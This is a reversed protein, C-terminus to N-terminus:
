GEGTKKEWEAQFLDETGPTPEVERRFGYGAAMRIAARANVVDLPMLCIRLMNASPIEGKDYGLYRRYLEGQTALEELYWCIAEFADLNKGMVPDVVSDVDGFQDAISFYAHGNLLLYYTQGNLTFPALPYQPDTM